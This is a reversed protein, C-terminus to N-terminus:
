KMMKIFEIIQKIETKTLEEFNPHPINHYLYYLSKATKDGNKKLADGNAIMKYLWEITRNNTVGKLKPGVLDMSPAHCSACHTSFLKQGLPPERSMLENYAHKDIITLKSQKAAKFNVIYALKGKVYNKELKYDLKSDWPTKNTEYVEEKYLIGDQSYYKWTGTKFKNEYFSESALKGNEFQFYTRGDLVGNKYYHYMFEKGNEHYRISEGNIESNLGNNLYSSIAQIKGTPFYETIKDCNCISNFVRLLRLEGTPYYLKITDRQGFASSTLVVYLLINVLHRM